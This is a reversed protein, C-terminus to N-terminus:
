RSYQVRKKLNDDPFCSTIGKTGVIKGGVAPGWTCVELQSEHKGGDVGAVLLWEDRM